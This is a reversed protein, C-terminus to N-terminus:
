GFAVLEAGLDLPEPVFECALRENTLGRVGGL